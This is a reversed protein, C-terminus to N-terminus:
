KKEVMSKLFTITDKQNAEVIAMSSVQGELKVAAAVSALLKAQMEKLELKLKAM